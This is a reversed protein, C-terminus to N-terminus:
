AAVPRARAGPGAPSIRRPPRSIVASPSRATSAHRLGTAAIAGWDHGIIVDRVVPLWRRRLADHM